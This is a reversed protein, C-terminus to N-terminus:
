TKPDLIDETTNGIVRSASAELKEMERSMFPLFLAADEPGRSDMWAYIDTILLQPNVYAARLKEKSASHIYAFAFTSLSWDADPLSAKFRNWLSYSTAVMPRLKIGAIEEGGAVVANDLLQARKEPDIDYSM